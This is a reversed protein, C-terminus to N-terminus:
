ECGLEMLQTSGKDKKERELAIRQSLEAVMAEVAARVEDDTHGAVAAMINLTGEGIEIGVIDTDMEPGITLDVVSVKVFGPRAKAIAKVHGLLAGGKALPIANKTLAEGLAGGMEAGTMGKGAHFRLRIGYSGAEALEKSDEEM